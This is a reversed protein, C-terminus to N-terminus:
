SPDKVSETPPCAPADDALRSGFQPVPVNPEPPRAPHLPLPHASRAHSRPLVVRVGRESGCRAPAASATCPGLRVSGIGLRPVVARAQGGRAHGTNAPWHARESRPCTSLPARPDTYVMSAAGGSDRGRSLPQPRELRSPPRPSVPVHHLGPLATLAACPVAAKERTPALTATLVAYIAYRSRRPLHRTAQDRRRSQRGRSDSTHQHTHHLCSLLASM